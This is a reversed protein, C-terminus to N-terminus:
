PGAPYAVDEWYIEGSGNVSLVCHSNSSSCAVSPKPIAYAVVAPVSPYKNSDSADNVINSSKNGITQMDSIATSDAKTSVASSVYDAVAKVSPYKDDSNTDNNMSTSKNATNEKDSVSNLINVIDTALQTATVTGDGIKAATVAKDAIKGTAVASDDILDTSVTNKSALAGLASVSGNVASSVYAAVAKASPYLADNLTSGSMDDSIKNSADEKATLGADVYAQSAITKLTAAANANAGLLVAAAFGFFVIKKNM